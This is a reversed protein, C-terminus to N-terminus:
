YPLTFFFFLSSSPVPDRINKNFLVRIKRIIITILEDIEQLSKEIKRKSEKQNKEKRGNKGKRKGKDKVAM